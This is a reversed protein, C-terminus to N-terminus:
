LTRVNKGKAPKYALQQIDVCTYQVVPMNLHRQIHIRVEHHLVLIFKEHSIRNLTLNLFMPCVAFQALCIQPVRLADRRSYIRFLM